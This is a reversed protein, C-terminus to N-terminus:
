LDTQSEVQPRSLKQFIAAALADPTMGQTDVAFDSGARYLPEREALLASLEEAPNQNGSTKSRLSPRQGSSNPDNQLRALLTAPDAQLWIVTGHERLLQWAKHHLVAGGGTALVIEELDACEVLVQEELQRFVQWGHRKVSEAVSCGLREVIMADTDVFRYGSLYALKRGVSTKGTGRFGTLVVVQPPRQQVASQKGQEIM